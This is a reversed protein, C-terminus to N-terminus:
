WSIHFPCIKVKLDDFYAACVWVREGSVFTEDTKKRDQMKVREAMKIVPINVKSYKELNNCYLLIVLRIYHGQKVWFGVTYSLFNMLHNHIACYYQSLNM